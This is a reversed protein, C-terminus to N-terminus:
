KANEELKAGCYPCYKYPMNRMWLGSFLGCISCQGSIAGYMNRNAGKWRGHVVPAADVAPMAAIMRSIAVIDDVPDLIKRGASIAEKGYRKVAEIVKERDILDGM